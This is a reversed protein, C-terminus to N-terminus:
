SHMIVCVRHIHKQLVPGPLGRFTLVQKDGLRYGAVHLLAHLLPKM